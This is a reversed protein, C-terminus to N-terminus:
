ASTRHDLNKERLVQEYHHAIYAWQGNPEHEHLRHYAAIIWTLADLAAGPDRDELCRRYRFVAAQADTFLQDNM